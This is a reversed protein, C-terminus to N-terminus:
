FPICERSNLIPFVEEPVNRESLVKDVKATVTHKVLDEQRLDYFIM